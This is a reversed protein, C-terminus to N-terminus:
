SQAEEVSARVLARVLEGDVPQGVRCRLHRMGKGGGELQRWQPALAAGNFLQLNLHSKHPVIAVLNSGGLMFVLNGWKVTQLLTPEAALVMSQM